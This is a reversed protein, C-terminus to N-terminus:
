LLVDVFRDLFDCYHKQISNKFNVILKDITCYLINSIGKKSLVKSVLKEKFHQHYFELLPACRSNQLATTTKANLFSEDEYQSTVVLFADLFLQTEIKPLIPNPNLDFLHLYYGCIFELGVISIEQCRIVAEDIVEIMKADRIVNKLSDKYGDYPKHKVTEMFQDNNFFNFLKMTLDTDRLCYVAVATRRQSLSFDSFTDDEQVKWYKAIYQPDLDIKSEGLLVKSVTNLKRPQYYNTYFSCTDVVFRGAILPNLHKHNLEILNSNYFQVWETAGIEGKFFDENESRKM